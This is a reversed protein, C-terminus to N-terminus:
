KIVFSSAIQNFDGVRSLWDSDTAKFEIVILNNRRDFVILDRVHEVRHVNVTSDVFKGSTDKDKRSTIKNIENTYEFSHGPLGAVTLDKDNLIDTKGPLFTTNTTSQLNQSFDSTSDAAKVKDSDATKTLLSRVYAVTGNLNNIEASQGAPYTVTVQMAYEPYEESKDPDTKYAFQMQYSNQGSTEKKTYWFGPISFQILDKPFAIMQNQSIQNSGPLTPTTSPKPYTISSIGQRKLSRAWLYPLVRLLAYGGVLFIVVSFLIIWILRRNRVPKVEIQNEPNLASIVDAESWGATRLEATIELDTKGAARMKSIFTELEETIM